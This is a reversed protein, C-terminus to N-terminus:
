SRVIWEAVVSAFGHNCSASAKDHEWLTGTRSAMYAFYDVCENLVQKYKGERALFDLRLFNGIFANSKYLKPYILSADRDPKIVEFMTRYLAPHSNKDAVGFWFAYYQCTETTNDAPKLVNGERVANDTFFEGNFSQELISAKVRMAKKSLTEDGYLRAAAALAGSYLMNSPYNVDQVFENARSWEIFVWKDMREILGDGNEYGTLFKLLAYIRDKFAGIMQVDDTRKKYDELEIILWMAWNAIFNGNPHDAPYCMPLMGSPLYDFQPSLLYATLMNREILNGGTLLKETRATFYSDCLWGARERSPCDTLVDVANQRFTAAAADFISQLTKDDTNFNLTQSSNEYTIFYPSVEANGLVVVKLYKLTYPEFTLVKYRGPKVKWKAANVVHGRWCALVREAGGFYKGIKPDAKIEDYLIEDFLIYIDSDSRATINLGIFGTLNRNLEYLDYRDAYDGKSIGAIYKLRCAETLLDCELEDKAYAKINDKPNDYYRFYDHVYADGDRQAKGSEITKDIPIRDFSPNKLECELLRNGAVEILPVEDFGGGGKYFAERDGSMIYSEVFPRQFSYKSVKKIRDDILYGRFADTDAIIGSGSLVECAFFAEEKVAYYADTYYSAVEVAIHTSKKLKVEYESINSYGHASRLPGYALFEGDVFIRFTNSAAIRFLFEGAPLLTRFGVTVNMGDKYDKAWVCKM